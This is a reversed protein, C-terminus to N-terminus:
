VVKNATILVGLDVLDWVAVPVTIEAGKIVVVVVVVQVIVARHVAIVVVVRVM